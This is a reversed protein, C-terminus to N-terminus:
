LHHLKKRELRNLVAWRTSHSTVSGATAYPKPEFGPYSISTKTTIRRKKTIHAERKSRDGHSVKHHVPLEADVGNSRKERVLQLEIKSAPTSLVISRFENAGYITTM